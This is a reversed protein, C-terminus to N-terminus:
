RDLRSCAAIEIRGLAREDDRDVLLRVDLGEFAGLAIEFQRVPPREAALGVVVLAMAGRGQEGGEVDGVAFHHRTVVLAPPPDLKQVEHVPDDGGMGAALDVDDEVVEVGVFGLALSPQRAVLVNMEVEGRGVGGPEVLDLAPEGDEASGREPPCAEGAHGLEPFVDIGKDLAVVLGSVRESPAFGLDM